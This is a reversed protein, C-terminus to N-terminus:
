SKCGNNFKSVLQFNSHTYLVNIPLLRIYCYRTSLVEKSLKNKFMIKKNCFVNKEASSM